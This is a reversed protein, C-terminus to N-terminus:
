YIRGPQKRPRVDSLNPWRFYAKSASLLLFLFFFVFDQLTVARSRQVVFKRIRALGIYFQQIWVTQSRIATHITETRSTRDVVSYRSRVVHKYDLSEKQLYVRDSTHASGADGRTIDTEHTTGQKVTVRFLTTRPILLLTVLSTDIYLHQKIFNANFTGCAQLTSTGTDASSAQSGITFTLM